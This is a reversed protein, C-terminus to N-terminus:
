RGGQTSSPGMLPAYVGIVQDAAVPGYYRSDFSNPIRDSFVFWEGHRLARCGRWQPLLNGRPDRQLVPGLRRNNLTLTANITCVTDGEGGVITKLIPVRRLYAMRDDAYPFAASPVRFAILRGPAPEGFTRRYLGLPESASRNWLVLPGVASFAALLGVVLLGAAALRESGRSPLLSPAAPM